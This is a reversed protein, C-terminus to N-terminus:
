DDIKNKIQQMFVDLPDCTELGDSSPKKGYEEVLKMHEELNNVDNLEDDFYKDEADQSIQQLDDYQDNNDISNYDIEEDRGDLFSSYMEQVFEERLLVRERSNVTQEVAYSEFQPEPRTDPEDFEGWMKKKPKSEKEVKKTQEALVETEMSEQLMQKHKMEKMENM